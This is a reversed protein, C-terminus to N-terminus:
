KYIEMAGKSYDPASGTVRVKLGCVPLRLGSYPSKVSFWSQADSFAPVAQKGPLNPNLAWSYVSLNMDPAKTLSFAADHLQIFPMYGTRLGSENGNGLGANLYVYQTADVVGIQGYGPHVGVFNDTYNTNVYWMLLGKNNSVRARALTTLGADVGKYSRWELVYYHSGTKSGTSVSWGGTTFSGLGAEANEAVIAAGDAMVKVNDVFMGALETGWDTAYRFRLKINQGAYASLDISESIWGNSNGTYAPLSNAITPYAEPNHFDAAMNPTSLSTWTVGDTSVQVFGADWNEEIDYWVSYTFTASAKGTLDVPLVMSNDIETGTGSYFEKLGEFPKNLVLVNKEKPMRVLIAQLNGTNMSATDMTTSIKTLTKFDQLTWNIWDGGHTLGLLIRSYPNIGTPMAGGPAGGWSGSGMISWYEVIDGDATYATDYDDPIGLDHVFEHAFVGVAGNEPETTYSYIATDNGNNPVVVPNVDVSSSHSWIADDGLVGGGAEQGIGPFIVMLHDVIGDPEDLDGDGDMDYPDEMDYDSLDVGSDLAAAVIDTVYQRININHSTDSDQGYYQGDKPATFWGLVDGTVNLNGNSQEKFYQRFTPSKTGEPTTYYGDGFLLQQYHAASFDQTWYTRGLDAPKAIQNNAMDSFQGLLVLVKVTKMPSGYATATAAPLTGAKYKGFKKGAHGGNLAGDLLSSAISSRMKELKGAQGRNLSGGAFNALAKNLELQTAKASLKGSAVLSDAVLDRNMPAYHIASGPADPSAAQVTMAGPAVGLAFVMAATIAFVILKKM